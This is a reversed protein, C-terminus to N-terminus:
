TRIWRSRAARRIPRALVASERRCKLEFATEKLSSFIRSNGRTRGTLQPQNYGSFFNSYHKLPGIRPWSVFKGPLSPQHGARLRPLDDPRVAGARTRTCGSHVAVVSYSGATTANQHPV